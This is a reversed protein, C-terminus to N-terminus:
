KLLYKKYILYLILARFCLVKLVDHFHFFISISKSYLLMTQTIRSSMNHISYQDSKQLHRQSEINEASRFGQVELSSIGESALQPYEAVLREEDLFQGNSDDSALQFLGYNLVDKLNQSLTCLLRQKTAWVTASPNFSM